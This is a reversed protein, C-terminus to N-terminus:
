RGRRPQRHMGPHSKDREMAAEQVRVPSTAQQSVRSSYLLDDFLLVISKSLVKIDDLRDADANGRTWIAPVLIIQVTSGDFRHDDDDLGTTINARHLESSISFPQAFLAQRDVIELRPKQCWIQLALMAADRYIAALEKFRETCEKDSVDELLSLGGMDNDIMKRVEYECEGNLVQSTPSLLTDGRLDLPRMGLYQRRLRLTEARWTLAKKTDGANTLLLSWGCDM